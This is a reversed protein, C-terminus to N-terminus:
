VYLSKMFDVTGRKEKIRDSQVFEELAKEFDEKTIKKKEKRPCSFVRLSHIFKTRTFLTEMDGGNFEFCDRHEKLLKESIANEDIEWGSEKVIAHFIDRLEKPSYDGITFKFPFRRQLGPNSKFFRKELDEKYGAIVCILDKKNESLYQNLTDICEKSFSDRQETDGLSYAEDIVLIGGRADEIVQKTKIATQGLYQGILDARKAFTVKKSTLVGLSAYIDALINIFKTKGVGPGGYVVTHLMDQNEADFQQLYYVILSLIEKKLSALGIMSLLKEIPKKLRYVTYFPINTHKTKDFNKSTYFKGLSIIDELSQLNYEYHNHYSSSLKTNLTLTKGNDLTYLVPEYTKQKKAPSPTPADEGEEPKRKLPEM